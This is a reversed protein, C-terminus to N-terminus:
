HVVFFAAHRRPQNQSSKIFEDSELASKSIHTNCRCSSIASSKSKTEKGCRWSGLQWPWCNLRRSQLSFWPHKMRSKSWQFRLPSRGRQVSYTHVTNHVRFNYHLWDSRVDDVHSLSLGHSWSLSNTLCIFILRVIVAQQVQQRKIRYKCILGRLYRSCNENKSTLFIVIRTFGWNIMNQHIPLTLHNAPAVYM